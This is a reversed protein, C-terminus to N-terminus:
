MVMHNTQVIVNPGNTRCNLGMSKFCEDIENIMEKAHKSTGEKTGQLLFKRKVEEIVDRVDRSEYDQEDEINYFEKHTKKLERLVRALEGYKESEDAWNRSWSKKSSSEDDFFKYPAIKILNKANDDEWVEKIDDVVLVVREHSLVLDFGKKLPKSRIDERAIVQSNAFYLEEPDLLKLMKRAYKRTGFTLISFEFLASAEKLFTEANPRLKTVWHDNHGSRQLYDRDYKTLKIMPNSHLLTNDLDLVLHLKQRALLSKLNKDRVSKILDANHISSSSNVNPKLNQVAM